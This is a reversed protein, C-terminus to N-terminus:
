SRGRMRWIRAYGDNGGSILRGSDESWAVSWVRGEHGRISSVVQWRDASALSEQWIRVTGQMDGTAISKGDPSWAAVSAPSWESIWSMSSHLDLVAVKTWESATANDEGHRERLMATWESVTTNIDPVEWM